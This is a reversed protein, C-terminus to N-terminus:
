QRFTRNLIKEDRDQLVVRARLRKKGEITGELYSIILDSTSKGLM